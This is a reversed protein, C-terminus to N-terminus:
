GKDKKLSDYSRYVEITVSNTGNYGISVVRVGEIEKYLDIRAVLKDNDILDNDLKKKDRPINDLAWYIGKKANRFALDLNEEFALNSQSFATSSLFLLLLFHSKM